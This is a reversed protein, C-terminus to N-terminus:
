KTISNNKVCKVGLLSGLGLLLLTAPEPQGPVPFEDPRDEPVPFKDSVEEPGPPEGIQPQLPLHLKSPRKAGGGGGGQRSYDAASPYLRGGGGGGFAVREEFLFEFTSRAFVAVVIKPTDLYVITSNATPDSVGGIWYVFYYGPKPVATLTVDTNLDFYHVGVDPTVTGAQTDTQQLLLVTADTRPQWESASGQCYAPELLGYLVVVLASIVAQWGGLTSNNDKM